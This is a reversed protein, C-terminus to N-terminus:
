HRGAEDQITRVVETAAREGSLVAGEVTPVMTYDGALAFGRPMTLARMEQIRRIFGPGMDRYRMDHGFVEAARVRKLIGPYVRELSPTLYALAETGDMKAIRDVVPQAPFITLASSGAPVLDAPKNQQIALAVIHDGPPEHRPFSLGFYKARMTGNLTLGVTAATHTNSRAIWQHLAPATDAILSAAAAPPTALIVGDCVDRNHDSTITWAGSDTKSIGSVTANTRVDVGRGALSQAIVAALSGMGGRVAYVEVDMGVRALAHYLAASTQEPTSGYYAALLPYALLEVFDSGMEREGWAAISEHDFREGGTSAPDNADLGGAQLTLFAAYKAALKLKLMTPLAGSTVMSPISGYTIEQASNRRWLADNGSARVLKDQAGADRALRFLRIYTSSVLQVATDVNAGSLEATRMLGGTQPAAEYLVVRHGKSQLQWAAALGAAGAGIVAITKTEHNTQVSGM